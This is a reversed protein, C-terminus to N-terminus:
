LSIRPTSTVPRSFLGLSLGCSTAPSTGYASSTRNDFNNNDTVNLRFNLSCVESKLDMTISRIFFPTYNISRFTETKYHMRWNSTSYLRYSYIVMENWLNACCLIMASQVVRIYESSSDVSISLSEETM